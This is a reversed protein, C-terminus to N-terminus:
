AEGGGSAVARQREIAQRLRALNATVSGKENFIASGAVISDAGAAVVSAITNEDIGGDAQVSAGRNWKDLLRRVRYIKRPTTAIFSQGGFGPNVSMVLVSDVIPAVEEIDIIPTGPNLAVGAGAGLSKIQEILRNIHMTAELHVILADAGAERFQDVYAEAGEIMLHVELPLRTAKRVASVVMPGFTINPVFHGDMVDLHLKDAGADEAERVQDGLRGFDATLISPAITIPRPAVGVSPEDGPTRAQADLTM